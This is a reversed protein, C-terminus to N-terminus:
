TTQFADFCHALEYTKKEWKSLLFAAKALRRTPSRRAAFDLNLVQGFYQMGVRKWRVVYVTLPGVVSKALETSTKNAMTPTHLLYRRHNVLLM